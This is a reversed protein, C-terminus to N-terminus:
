FKVPAALTKRISTLFKSNCRKSFNLNGRQLYFNLQNMIWPSLVHCLDVERRRSHCCMTSGNAAGCETPRPLDCAPECLFSGTGNGRASAALQWCMRDDRKVMKRLSCGTTTLSRRRHGEATLFQAEVPGDLEARAMDGPGPSRDRM